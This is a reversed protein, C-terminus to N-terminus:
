AASRAWSPKQADGGSAQNAAPQQQGVNQATPAAIPAGDAKRWAKVENKDKPVTYRGKNQVTGAKIFEVRIIHNKFHLDASDRPNTVGTAERISAFQRNAIQSTQANPHKLSLDCWVKRNKFEGEAITYVLALKEGDSNQFPVMDSDSIHAIYEGTPLPSFDTQTEANPDYSGTLNAM